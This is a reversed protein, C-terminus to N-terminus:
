QYFIIVYNNIKANQKLIVNTGVQTWTDVQYTNNAGAQFWQMKNVFVQRCIGNVPIAFTDNAVTLKAYDIKLFPAPTSDAVNLKLALADFVANESPTTALFGSRITQVIGSSEVNVPVEVGISWTSANSVLANLGESTVITAGGNVNFFTGKGVLIFEKGTTNPLTQGDVVNAPQFAVGSVTSGYNTIFDALQQVTARKLDTGVEHAFNNTLSIAASPLEGLRLSTYDM